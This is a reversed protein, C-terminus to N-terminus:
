VYICIHRMYTDYIYDRILCLPPIILPGPARILCAKPFLIDDDDDIDDGYDSESSAQANLPERLPPMSARNRSPGSVPWPLVLSIDINKFIDM